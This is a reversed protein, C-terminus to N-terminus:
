KEQFQQYFLPVGFKDRLRQLYSNGADSLPHSSVIILKDVQVGDASWYAYELLQPIAQRICAKLTQAVKIEYFWRFKPTEVVLDISTGLGTPVECGVCERGYQGALQADLKNQIYNHILKATKSSVPSKVSVAGTKKPKHGSKFKYQGKKEKDDVDLFYDSDELSELVEDMDGTSLWSAFQAKDVGFVDQFDNELLIPRVDGVGSWGAAKMKLGFLQVALPSLDPIKFLRSVDFEVYDKTHRISYGLEEIIHAFNTFAKGDLVDDREIKGAFKSAVGKKMAAILQHHSFIIAIFVLAKVVEPGKEKARLWVAPVVNDGGISLNKRAQVEEINIGPVSGNLRKLVTAPDYDNVLWAIKHAGHKTLSTKLRTLDLM